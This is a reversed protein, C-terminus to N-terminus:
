FTSRLTRSPLYIGKHKLTFHLVGSQNTILAGSCFSRHPVERVPEVDRPEDTSDRYVIQILALIRDQLRM